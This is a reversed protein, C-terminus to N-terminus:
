KAAIMLRCCIWTLCDRCLVSGIALLTTWPNRFQIHWVVFLDPNSAGRLSIRLASIAADKTKLARANLVMRDVDQNGLVQVHLWLAPWEM